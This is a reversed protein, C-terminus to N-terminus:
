WRHSRQFISENRQSKSEGDTVHPYSNHRGLRTNHFNFLNIGVCLPFLIGLLCGNHENNMAELGQRM